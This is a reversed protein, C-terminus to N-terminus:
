VGRISQLLQQIMQLLDRRRERVMTDDPLHYYYHSSDGGPVEEAAGYAVFDDRQTEYCAKVWSAIREVKSYRVEDIQGEHPAVPTSDRLMGVAVIDLDAGVDDLWATVDTPAVVDTTSVLSGDVYLKPATGDQTYVAHHWNTDNYADDSKKIFKYGINRVDIRIMDDTGNIFFNVHKDGRAQDTVQFFAGHKTADDRKFWVAISGVTDAEFDASATTWYDDTGDFQQAEGIYGSATVAPEGAGKKTGDHNGSTSDRVSSTNPDDRMHCVLRYDADWVSEAASDNPDGIYTTNDSQTSDYYLYIDTDSAALISPVKVWLWAKSNGNDWQEIEVYCETTGDDETVAIKKRNAGLETFIDTIDTSGTGSSASLYLLIPFDTLNATVDGSDITIKRRYKWSGLWAM